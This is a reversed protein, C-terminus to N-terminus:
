YTGPILELIEKIPMMQNRTEFSRGNELITRATNLMAPHAARLMHNAYIVINVGAKEFEIEPISDFSSPVVILPKGQGFEKYLEAFQLIEAGDSKRSHIMIGDAGADLYASAREVADDMGKDLILSECRAFIMFDDSIQAQKGCAIKHKFAEISDQTQAVDTGFLSNKKLGIKDELVVASVGLRELTRVTFAFHEPKGGTDGDYIMPKSTCEFIQSVSIVRSTTDVAEIDPKGKATSDTLSSSWMGDFSRRDEGVRLNEVILGCLGNHVELIRILRKQELLESLSCRRRDPTTGITTKASFSVNDKGNINKAESRTAPDSVSDNILTAVSGGQCEEIVDVSENVPSRTDPHNEMLPRRLKHRGFLLQDIIIIQGFIECLFM